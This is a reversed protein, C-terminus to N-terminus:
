LNIQKSFYYVAADTDAVFHLSKDQVEDVIGGTGTIAIVNKKQLYFKSILKVTGLGGGIVIAGYCKKSIIDHKDNQNVAYQISDVYKSEVNISGKELIAMTKGKAEKAGRFAAEFTAKLGGASVGFGAKALKYGCEFAARQNYENCFTGYGLIAIFKTKM